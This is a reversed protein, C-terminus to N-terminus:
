EKQKSYFVALFLFLSGNFIILPFIWYYLRLVRVVGLMSLLRFGFNLAVGILAILTATKLTM